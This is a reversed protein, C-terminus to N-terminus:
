GKSGFAIIQGIIRVVGVVFAVVVFVACYGFTSPGFTRKAIPSVPLVDFVVVVVEVVALVLTHGKELVVM